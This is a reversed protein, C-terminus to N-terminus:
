RRKMTAAVANDKLCLESSSASPPKDHSNGPAANCLVPTDPDKWEGKSGRTTRVRDPLCPKLTKLFEVRVSIAASKPENHIPM